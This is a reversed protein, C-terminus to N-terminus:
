SFFQVITPKKPFSGRLVAFFFIELNLGGPGCKARARMEFVRGSGLGCKGPENVDRCFFRRHHFLNETPFFEQRGRAAQLHSRALLGLPYELIGGFFPLPPITPSREIGFDLIFSALLMPKSARFRSHTTPVGFRTKKSHRLYMGTLMDLGGPPIERRGLRLLRKFAARLRRPHRHLLAQFQLLM